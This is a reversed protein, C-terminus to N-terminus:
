DHRSGGRNSALATHSAFAARLCRRTPALRESPQSDVCIVDFFFKLAVNTANILIPSTGQDVLNQQFRRLDNVAATAPSRKILAALQKVASFYHTRSKLERMDDTRRQPLPSAAESSSNM